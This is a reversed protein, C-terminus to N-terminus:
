DQHFNKKNVVVEDSSDEIVDESKDSMPCELYTAHCAGNIDPGAV